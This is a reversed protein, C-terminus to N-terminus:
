DISANFGSVVGVRRPGSRRQHRQFRTEHVGRRENAGFVGACDSACAEFSRAPHGTLQEVNPTTLDGYGDKFGQFVEIYGETLWEPMGMGQM